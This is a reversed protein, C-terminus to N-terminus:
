ANIVWNSQQRTGAQMGILLSLVFGYDSLVVLRVCQQHSNPHQDCLSRSNTRCVTSSSTFQCSVRSGREGVTAKLQHPSCLRDSFLLTTLQPKAQGTWLTQRLVKRSGFPLQRKAAPNGVSVTPLRFKWVKEVRWVGCRPSQHPSSVDVVLM